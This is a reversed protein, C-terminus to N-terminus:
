ANIGATALAEWYQARLTEAIADASMKDLVASFVEPGVRQLGGIEKLIVLLHNIPLGGHGPPLRHFLCDDFLSRHPPLTAEADTVQVM